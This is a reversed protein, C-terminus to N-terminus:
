QRTNAGGGPPKKPGPEKLIVTRVYWEGIARLPDSDDGPVGLLMDVLKGGEAPETPEVARRAQREPVIAYNRGAGQKLAMQGVWAQVQYPHLKHERAAEAVTVEGRLLQEVVKRKLEQPITSRTSM